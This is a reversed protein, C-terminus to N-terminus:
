ARLYNRRTLLGPGSLYTLTLIGGSSHKTPTFDLRTSTLERRTPTFDVGTPTTELDQRLQTKDPSHVRAQFNGGLARVNQGFYFIKLNSTM